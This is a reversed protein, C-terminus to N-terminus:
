TGKDGFVRIFGEFIYNNIFFINLFGSSVVKRKLALAKKSFYKIIQPTFAKSNAPV